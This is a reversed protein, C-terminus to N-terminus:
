GLAWNVCLSAFESREDDSVSRESLSLVCKLFFGLLLCFWWRPLRLFGHPGPWISGWRTFLADMCPGRFVVAKVEGGEM